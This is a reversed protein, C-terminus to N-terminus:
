VGLLAERCRHEHRVERAEGAHDDSGVVAGPARHAAARARDPRGQARGHEGWRMGAYAVLLIELERWWLQTLEAAVHGLAHVAQTTPIEAEDVHIGPDLEVDRRDRPVTWRVGRLM